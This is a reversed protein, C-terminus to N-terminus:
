RVALWDNIFDALTSYHPEFAQYLREPEQTELMRRLEMVVSQLNDGAAQLKLCKTELNNVKDKAEPWKNMYFMKGDSM